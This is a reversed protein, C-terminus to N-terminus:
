FREPMASVLRLGILGGWDQGVFTADRLELQQVVSTMWDVHRQYTYATRELPKDSRGFGVLDPAICRLGEDVYHVRVTTTDCAVDCYHPAFHYGPLGVFQEDPTRYVDM